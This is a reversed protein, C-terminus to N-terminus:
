GIYEFIIGTRSAKVGFNEGDKYYEGRCKFYSEFMIYTNLNNGELESVESEWRKVKGLINAEENTLEGWFRGKINKYVEVIQNALDIELIDGDIYKKTIKTFINFEEKDKMDNYLSNMINAFYFESIEDDKYDLYAEIIKSLIEDSKM